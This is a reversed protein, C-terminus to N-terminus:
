IPLVRYVQAGTIAGFLAWLAGSIYDGLILGIFFPLLLRYTKMGGYRVILLKILWGLFTAGWLWPMTFTGALAYGVPHFPWWLFRARAAMLLGVVVFGIGVWQLRMWDVRTPANVWGSLLDWPIRGTSTRWSDVHASAAGYHYYCTLVGMWAALAGLVTALLMAGVLHRQNMRAETALKMGELQHPMLVTRYDIDMWQFQALGVMDQMSLHSTGAAATIMQHPTMDPGFAWPLGAEARIRTYTLVVLFYLLFFVLALHWSVGLEIAFLVLAASGAVIGVLAWRYPLPERRDDLSGAAGPQWATRLVQKLYGRMSWLSLLALGLFAGGAQEGEYPIRSMALSTGPDRFGLMAALVDEGKRAFFFFWAAFAVDLPLLYVLGIVVPYFSFDLEGLANWPPHSLYPSFLPTNTLNLRPDSPKIPLFPISPILYAIGALTQLAFAVAFGIWMARSTFFARNGGDRTMELPLMVIPFTLREQEVWRRRLVVNLCIMVGLLVLIFASWVLIPTIWGLLHARTFFSSQGIYFEHLVAPDPFAWRHLYPHYQAWNNEPSAYHYAGTLMMNLFQVMGVSSIEISVTQMLFIFLLEAQTLAFRPLWKKLAFNLLILVLLAFVVGISLAMVALETSQAVIESYLNWFCLVPVLLAGILLARPTVGYARLGRASGAQSVTRPTQSPAQM